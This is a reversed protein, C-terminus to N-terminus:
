KNLTNNKKDLYEFVEETGHYGVLTGIVGFLFGMAPELMMGLSIGIAGVFGGLFGKTAERYNIAKFSPKNCNVKPKTNYKCNNKVAYVNNYSNIPQIKM